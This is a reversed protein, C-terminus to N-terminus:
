LHVHLYMENPALFKNKVLFDLSFENKPNRENCLYM